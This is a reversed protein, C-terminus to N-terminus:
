RQSRDILRYRKLSEQTSKGLDDGGDTGGADNRITILTDGSWMIMNVTDETEPSLNGVKFFLSFVTNAQETRSPPVGDVQVTEDTTNDVKKAIDGNDTQDGEKVIADGREVVQKESDTTKTTPELEIKEVNM